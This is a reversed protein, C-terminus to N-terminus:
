EVVSSGLSGDGIIDGHEVMGDRARRIREENTEFLAPVGSEAFSGGGDEQMMKALGRASHWVVPMGHGNFGAVIWQGPRGPVPGVHPHSDYSYGMVGTWVCDVAASSDEWGVFTRQMFGDYYGEVAAILTGDDTNAYWQETHPRSLRAAGGVVVSGDPRPILYSLTGDETRTVYSGRLPPPRSPSERDSDTPLAIHTCIGRCPVISAAYEPLLGAVYANTAHVIRSARITGRPTTVIFRPRGPPALVQADTTSTQEEIGLVPTNAQLNVGHDRVLKRFLHTVFKYPFMSGAQYTACVKAGRVGCSEEAKTPDSEFTVERLYAMKDGGHALMREYVARAAAGAEADCWVTINKTVVFDCDIRHAAIFEQLAHLQALEFTAIETAADLGSRAVFAPISGFLDPRVHGGNRGTAGSCIGRAELVTIKPHPSAALASSPASTRGEEAQALHWATAAGAYGAGIILVDTQVPLEETTNHNFFLDSGAVADQLWFSPLPNARPLYSNEMGKPHSGPSMAYQNITILPVTRCGGALSKEGIAAVAGAPWRM